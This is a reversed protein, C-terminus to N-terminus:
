IKRLFECSGKLSRKERIPWNCSNIKKSFRKTEPIELGRIYQGGSPTLKSILCFIDFSIHGLSKNGPPISTTYM